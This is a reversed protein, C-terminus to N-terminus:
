TRGSGLDVQSNKERKDIDIPFQISKESDVALTWKRWSGSLTVMSTIVGCLFLSLMYNELFLILM